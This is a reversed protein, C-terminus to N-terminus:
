AVENAEPIFFLPPPQVLGRGRGHNRQMRMGGERAEESGKGM